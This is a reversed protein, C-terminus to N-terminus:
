SQHTSGVKSPLKMFNGIKASRRARIVQGHWGSMRFQRFPISLIDSFINSASFSPFFIGSVSWKRKLPKGDNRGVTPSMNLMYVQRETEISSVDDGNSAGGTAPIM